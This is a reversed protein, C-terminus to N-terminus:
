KVIESKTIDYLDIFVRKINERIRVDIVYSFTSGMNNSKHHQWNGIFTGSCKESLLLDVIAHPERWEFLNKKTFYFEYNNERLYKIVNNELEYSLIYIIDNKDFYKDILQIYKKELESIFDKEEMNNHGAMNFTMDKELRLHIVNIKKNLINLDNIYIYDKDKNVLIINETLKYFKDIFKINKLLYTFLARQNKILSDIENWSQVTSPSKFDINVCDFLYENYEDIYEKDNFTYYIKLTKTIGLAPDGKLGNLPYRSPISIKKDSYFNMKIEDTIDFLKDESGYTVKQLNFNINKADVLEINFNKLIINFADLDLIESIYCMNETCPELRFKDIILIKQKNNYANIIGWIIFFLQNSLGTGFWNPMIYSINKM